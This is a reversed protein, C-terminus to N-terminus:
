CRADCNGEICHRHECLGHRFRIFAPERPCAAAVVKVLPQAVDDNYGNLARTDDRNPGSSITEVVRFKPSPMVVIVKSNAAVKTVSIDKKNSITEGAVEAM